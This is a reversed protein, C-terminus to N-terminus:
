VVSSCIWSSNEFYVEWEWHRIEQQCKASAALDFPDNHAEIAELLSGAAEAENLVVCMLICEVTQLVNTAGLQVFTENPGIEIGAELFASLIASAFRTTLDSVLVTFLVIRTSTAVTSSNSFSILVVSITM